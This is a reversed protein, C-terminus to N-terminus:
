AGKEIVEVPIDGCFKAMALALDHAKKKEVFSIGIGWGSNRKIGVITWGDSYFKVELREPISERIDQVIEVSM